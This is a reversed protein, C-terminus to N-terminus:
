LKTSSYPMFLSIPYVDGFRSADIFTRLAANYTEVAEDLCVSKLVLRERAELINDYGVFAQTVDNEDFVRPMYSVSVGQRTTAHKRSEADLRRDPAPDSEYWVIEAKFVFKGLHEGNTYMVYCHNFNLAKQATMLGDGNDLRAIEAEIVSKLRVNATKGVYALLARKLAQAYSYRILQSDLHHAIQARIVAPDLLKLDTQM